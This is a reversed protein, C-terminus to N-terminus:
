FQRFNEPQGGGAGDHVYRKIGCPRGSPIGGLSLGLFFHQGGTKGGQLSSRSGRSSCALSGGKVPEMIVLPVGLKEALAYGKDGAQIDRDIYNYQIQCFDWPRSTLIEEFVEYDDHFSFGIYRIKGAEVCPSWSLFCM